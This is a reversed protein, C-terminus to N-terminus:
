LIGPYKRVTKDWQKGWNNDVPNNTNYNAPIRRMKNDWQKQLNMAQTLSSHNQFEYPNGSQSATQPLNNRNHNLYGVRYSGPYQKAASNYIKNQQPTAKSQSGKQAANLKAYIQAPNAGQAIYHRARQERAVSAQDDMSKQQGYRYAMEAKNPPQHTKAQANAFKILKNLLTNNNM